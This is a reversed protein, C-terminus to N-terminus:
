RNQGLCGPGDRHHQVVHRGHRHESQRHHQLARGDAPRRRRGWWTPSWWTPMRAHRPRHGPRLGGRGFVPAARHEHRQHHRPFRQRAACYLMPLRRRPATSRARAPWSGGRTPSPSWPRGSRPPTAPAAGSAGPPRPRRQQVLRLRPLRHEPDADYAVDPNTRYTTSQTVVGKQYTPQSEYRSIGGGSGSWGSESIYSGSSTLNLTTGGVSLVNPSIAPYGVPAGSDGSSAVFTVGAHGSPTTFYSDYSTEGSFEGGGWSM